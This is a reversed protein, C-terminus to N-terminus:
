IILIINNGTSNQIWPRRTVGNRFDFPTSMKVRISGADSPFYFLVKLHKDTGNVLRCYTYINSHVVLTPSYWWLERFDDTFASIDMLGTVGVNVMNGVGIGNWNFAIGSYRRDDYYFPNGFYKLQLLLYYNKKKKRWILKWCHHQVDIARRYVRNEPRLSLKKILRQSANVLSWRIENLFWWKGM